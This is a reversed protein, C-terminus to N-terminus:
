TLLCQRKRRGLQRKRNLKTRNFKNHVFFYICFFALNHQMQETLVPKIYNMLKFVIVNKAIAEDIAWVSTLLHRKTKKEATLPTYIGTNFDYLSIANANFM